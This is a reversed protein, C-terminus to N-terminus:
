TIVVIIVYNFSVCLPLKSQYITYFVCKKLHILLVKQLYLMSLPSVFIKITTNYLVPITSHSWLRESSLYFPCSRIDQHSISFIVLACIPIKDLIQHKIESFITETYLHITLGCMQYNVWVGWVLKLIELFPMRYFQIIYSVQFCSLCQHAELYIYCQLDQSESM